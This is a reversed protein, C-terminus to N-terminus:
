NKLYIEFIKLVLRINKYFDLNLYLSCLFNVHLINLNLFTLLTVNFKYFAITIHM